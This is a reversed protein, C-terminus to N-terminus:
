YLLRTLMANALPESGANDLLRQLKESGNKCGTFPDPKELPEINTVRAIWPDRPTHPQYIPSPPELSKRDM